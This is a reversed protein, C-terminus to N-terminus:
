YGKVILFDGAEGFVGAKRDIRVCLRQSASCRRLEILGGQAELRAVEAELMARRTSLATVEGRSPLIWWAAGLPVACALTAMGLSWLAVRLDAVHRLRRLTEAARRSDEDLSHLEELMTSRIEQRAISELEGVHVKLKELVAEALTQNAHAGELLLGLKMASDDVNM